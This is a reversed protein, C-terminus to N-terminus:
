VRSKKNNFVISAYIIISSVHIDYLSLALHPCIYSILVFNFMRAENGVGLLENGEV